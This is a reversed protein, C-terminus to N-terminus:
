EAGGKYKKIMRRVESCISYTTLWFAGVITIIVITNITFAWVEYIFIDM